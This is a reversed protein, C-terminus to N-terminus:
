VDLHYGARLIVPGVLGSELLPSDKTFHKWTTFAVRPSEPKPEDKLYWEPIEAIGGTAEPADRVEKNDALAKDAARGYVYEAPQQEDGILRNPWLNTVEVVLTNKGAVVDGTVEVSYPAKWVIGKDKGNIKVEALVEVRGLDLFLRHGKKLWGSPVEFQRTYTVTGSFYKVGDVPHKHLSILTALQIQM